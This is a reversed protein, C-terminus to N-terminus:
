DNVEHASRVRLCAGVVACVAAPVYAFGISFGGLLVFVVLLAASVVSSVAWARGRFPLPLVAILVPLLLAVLVGPGNVEFLTASTDQTVLVGDSSTTSSSGAYLPVFLFAVMPVVTLAVAALQWWRKAGLWRDNAVDAVQDSM